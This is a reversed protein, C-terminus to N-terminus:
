VTPASPVWGSGVSSFPSPPVISADTSSASAGSPCSAGTIVSPLSVFTSSVLEASLPISSDAWGFSSIISVFIFLSVDPMISFRMSASDKRLIAAGSAELTLPPRHSSIMSTMSWGSCPCTSLTWTPVFVTTYSSDQSSGIYSIRATESTQPYM